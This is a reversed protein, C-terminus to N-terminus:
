CHARLLCRGQLSPLPEGAGILQWTWRLGDLGVTVVERPHDAAAVVEPGLGDHFECSGTSSRRLLGSPVSALKLQQRPEWPRDEGSEVWMPIGSFYALALCGTPTATARRLGGGPVWGYEGARYVTGTLHLEGDLVVLEEDVPYHGDTPREWGAPFRVFGISSRRIPDAWLRVIEVPGTGGPIVTTEWALDGLLDIASGSSTM